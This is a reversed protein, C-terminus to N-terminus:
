KKIKTLDKNSVSFHNLFSKVPFRKELELKSFNGTFQLKIKFNLIM